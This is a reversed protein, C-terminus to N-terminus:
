PQFQFTYLDADRLQFRLRVERGALASVDGGHAWVVPREISNGFLPSCEGMSFGPIPGGGADQLEVKVVGAISTAFNLMLRRGTFRVPITVVEGGDSPARVSVFGDLRLTYRRIVRGSGVWQGEACYFSLEDPAGPLASPTQVPHSGLFQQGYNWTGTREIGPRIFATNWRKFQVGDRSAMLLTESIATGFRNDVKARMARHEADPLARMSDSWTREIYRAPFGLYLHPAREYSRTIAYYLEEPPSDDYRLDVPTSWELFDRSTATRIDRRMTKPPDISRDDEVVANGPDIPVHSRFYARYEGRAADWYAANLAAGVKKLDLTRDQMPSWHIGDPSKFPVLGKPKNSWFIAKYRAGATAAPNADRFISPMPSIEPLVGIPGSALLINNKTSGQFECLGLAPQRWHIGDDSEEYCLYRTGTYDGEAAPDVKVWGAIYYKRYLSGDRFVAGEGCMNGEWPNRTRSVERPVPHHLRLAAKGTLEGILRGDVFLQRESGVDMISTGDAGLAGTAFLAAAAIARVARRGRGDQAGVPGDAAPLPIPIWDSM